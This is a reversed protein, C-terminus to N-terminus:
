FSSWTWDTPMEGVVSMKREDDDDDPQAGLDDM